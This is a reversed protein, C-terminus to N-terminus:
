EALLIAEAWQSVAISEDAEEYVLLAMGVAPGPQFADGIHVPHGETAWVTAGPSFTSQFAMCATQTGDIRKQFIWVDLRLPKEDTELQLLGRPFLCGTTKNILIVDDFNPGPM